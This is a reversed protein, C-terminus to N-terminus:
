LMLVDTMSYSGSKKGALFRVAPAVGRAFAMRSRARHILEIEEGDSAFIVHHEGVVEGLRLSSTQVPGKVEEILESLRKATGSPADIKHRHHTESVAVDYGDSLIKRIKPALDFLLNVGISLNPAIIHAVKLNELYTTQEENFGTAGILIPIGAREAREAHEIAADALSVDVWVNASFDKDPIDGTLEVSGIKEGDHEFIDVAWAVNIDDETELAALIEQGMRGGAGFITTTVM